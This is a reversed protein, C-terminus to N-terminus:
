QPLPYLPLLPHPPSLLRGQLLPLLLVPLQPYVLLQQGEPQQTFLAHQSIESMPITSLCSDGTSTLRTNCNNKHSFGEVFRRNLNNKGVPGDLKLKKNCMHM